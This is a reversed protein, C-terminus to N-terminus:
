AKSNKSKNRHKKNKKKYVSKLGDIHLNLDESIPAKMSDLIFDIGSRRALKAAPVFDSDGSILVIRKVFQNLSTSAIDTGIMMDVGAQKFDWRFNEDTLDEFEIEKKLLKKVIEQKIQWGHTHGLTGLRLATKRRKSLESHFAKRIQSSGTFKFNIARKTIPLHARHDSPPCDYVFTRYLEDQDEDNEQYKGHASLHDVTHRKLNNSLQKAIEQLQEEEDDNIRSRGHVLKEVKKMEDFLNRDVHKLRKMWFALDIFVATIM